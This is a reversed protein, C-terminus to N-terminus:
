VAPCTLASGGSFLYDMLTTFDLVDYFGDSNVDMSAPYAPYSHGSFLVDILLTLDIIDVNEDGTLDGCIFYNSDYTTSAASPASENGAFDIATFSFQNLGQKLTALYSWSTNPSQPIIEVGDAKIAINTEKTGGITRQFLGTTLPLSYVFPPAPNKTDLSFLPTEGSSQLSSNGEKSATIKIKTQGEFDPLDQKANWLGAKNAGPSQVGIGSATLINQWSSGNWFQFSIISNKNESDTLNYSINVNGGSQSATQSSIVPPSGPRFPGVSPADSFQGTLNEAAVAYFYNLGNVLNTDTFSTASPNSTTAVPTLGWAGGFSFNSRFIDFQKFDSPPTYSNWNLTVQNNGAIGYLDTVPPPYNGSNVPQLIFDTNATSQAPIQVFLNTGYYNPTWGTALYFGPYYNISYDGAGDAFFSNILYFDIQANPIKQSTASDIVSGSFTGRYNEPNSYARAWTEPSYNGRNGSSDFSVISFYLPINQLNPDDFYFTIGAYNGPPFIYLPSASDYQGSATSGYLVYHDRAPDSSQQWRLTIGGPTPDTSAGIWPPPTPGTYQPSGFAIGKTLENNNKWFEPGTYDSKFNVSHQGFLNQNFNIEFTVESNSEFVITPPLGTFDLPINQSDIKLTFASPLASLNLPDSTIYGNNRVTVWLTANPNPVSIPNQIDTVAIDPKSLAEIAKTTKTFGPTSFSGDASQTNKLYDIAKQNYYPEIGYSILSHYSLATKFLDDEWTGSYYQRSKLFNLGLNIKTPILVDGGAMGSIVVNRFPYLSQLVINTAYVSGDEGAIEPWGGNPNQYNLLYLLAAKLTFQPDTGPDQYNTTAIADLVKATTFIDAGYNKKIGFGLSSDNIQASLFDMSEIMDDGAGALTTVKDALYDSSEPFSFRLWDLAKSKMQDIQIQEPAGAGVKQNLENLLKVVTATELNKIKGNHSWSGDASQNTFLYNLGASVPDTITATKASLSNNLAPSVKKTSIIKIKASAPIESKQSSLEQVTPRHIKSPDVTIVKKEIIENEDVQPQDLTSTTASLLGASRSIPLYWFGSVLISTIIVLNIIKIGSKKM